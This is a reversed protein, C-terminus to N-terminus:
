TREFSLFHKFVCSNLVFPNCEGGKEGGKRAFMDNPFFSETLKEPKCRTSQVYNCTLFTHTFNLFEEATNEFDLTM